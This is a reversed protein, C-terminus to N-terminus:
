NTAYAWGFLGAANESTLRATEAYDLKLGNALRDAVYKVNGPENRQGRHPDPSLYPSDTEVVLRTVPVKTLLDRLEAGNKYTIPGAIGLYFGADIMRLAESLDASYAHLVGARHALSEDLTASWPLLDDVIENIADRNHIIVPLMCQSALELQAHFARLQVDRATFNRYFDLGIEGIAVVSKAQSLQVLEEAVTTNWTDARHPHVGVAAYLGPYEGALEVAERSSQIDIGPVVIRQVGEKLAREIVKRRDKEFTDLTLHCHTDVLSVLEPNM